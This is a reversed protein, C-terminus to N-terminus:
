NEDKNERFSISFAPDNAFTKIIDHGDTIWGDVPYWFCRKPHKAGPDFILDRLWGKFQTQRGLIVM